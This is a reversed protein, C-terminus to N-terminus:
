TALIVNRNILNAVAGGAIGVGLMRVLGTGFGAVSAGIVVVVLARMNPTLGGPIAPAIMASGVIGAGVTAAEFLNRQSFVRQPM